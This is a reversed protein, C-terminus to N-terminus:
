RAIMSKRKETKKEARESWGLRHIDDREQAVINVPSTITKVTLTDAPVTKICECNQTPGKM